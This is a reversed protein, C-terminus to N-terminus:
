APAEETAEAVPQTLSAGEQKFFPMDIGHLKFFVRACAMVDYVPDHANPMEEGFFHRYAEELKPAKPGKMGRALMKDTPPLNCEAQSNRCTDYGPILKAIEDAQSRDYGNRLMAIRMIKDDHWVHHAVRLRARGRIAQVFTDTVLREPVGEALAREQTIGHINISVEPIVWGDPKVIRNWLKVISGDEECLLLAIAVLHPQDSHDSPVPIKTGKPKEM